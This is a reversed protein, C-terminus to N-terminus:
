SDTAADEFVLRDGVRIHGSELIRLCVGSHRGLARATNEGTVQNLYGCPPRPKWYEFRASGIRFRRQVLDRTRLGAIVLNRRHQGRDLGVALRRGARELDHQSILTLECSEVRHWHGTDACYRDGRLGHGALVEATDLPQMAEGAGASSYIAALHPPDRVTDWSRKLLRWLDRGLM